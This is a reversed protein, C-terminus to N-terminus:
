DEIKYGITRINKIFKGAIGLKERLNRIHVDITRDLVGKNSVDLHDLIQERSFAWGKRQALLSLIKFESPTLSIPKSNIYAQYKDLNIELIGGIIIKSQRIHTGRRLVAKIRAILERPSFPKTVYDDAGLELGVIKDIEEAKATLMIIPITAFKEKSKLMRCIEIGDSDPLMIDLLILDPSNVDIFKFFSRGDPFTKVNYDAKKLNISLLERIDAEDDVAAILLKRKLDFM